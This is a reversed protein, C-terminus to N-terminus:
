KSAGSGEWAAGKVISGGRRREQLAEIAKRDGKAAAKTLAELDPPKGGNSGGGSSGSGAKGSGRLIRDKNPLQSIVEAIADTFKAPNGKGDLIPEGDTGRVVIQYSDPNKEDDEVSVFRGLVSIAMDVDLVTKSADHGGFLDTATGFTARVVTDRFKKTLSENRSREKGLEEGHKANLQERLKDFEGAKKAREEEAKAAEAELTALRDKQEPTLVRGEESLKKLEGKAADRAQFAKKAEAEWYAADKTGGGGGGGGGGGDGEGEFLPAAVRFGVHHQRVRERTPTGASWGWGPGFRKM